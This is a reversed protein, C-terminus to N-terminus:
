WPRRSTWWAASTRIAPASTTSSSRPGSRQSLEALVDRCVEFHELAATETVELYVPRTHFGIPDDAQIVWRSTLEQPHVNVFLPVDGCTAFAIERILRGIRGCAQEREAAEFLAVPNPYRAVKPRALAEYAFLRGNTLDVIPQFAVGMDEPTLCRVGQDATEQSDDSYTWVLKTNRM